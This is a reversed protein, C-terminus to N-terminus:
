GGGYSSMWAPKPAELKARGGAIGHEYQDSHSPQPHAEPLELSGDGTRKRKKWVIFGLVIFLIAGVGVGAGIGGKAGASLGGNKTSSSQSPSPIVTPLATQSASTPIIPASSSTLSASTITSTSSASLTSSVSSTTSSAALSWRHSDDNGETVNTTRRNSMAALTFGDGCCDQWLKYSGDSWTDIHM